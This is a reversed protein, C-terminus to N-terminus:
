EAEAVSRGSFPYKREGSGGAKLEGRRGGAAQCHVLVSGRMRMM